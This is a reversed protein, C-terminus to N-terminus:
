LNDPSTLNETILDLTKGIYDTETNYEFKGHEDSSVSAVETGEINIKIMAGKVPANNKSNIITGHIRM